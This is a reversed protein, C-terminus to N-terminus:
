VVFESGNGEAVRDELLDRNTRTTQGVIWVEITDIRDIKPMLYSLASLPRNSNSRRRMSSQSDCEILEFTGYM